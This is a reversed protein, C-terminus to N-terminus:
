AKNGTGPRQLACMNSSLSGKFAQWNRSLLAHRSCAQVIQKPKQLLPFVSTLAATTIQYQALPGAVPNYPVPRPGAQAYHLPRPRRASSPLSVLWSLSACHHLSLKHQHPHCAWWRTRHLCPTSRQCCGLSGKGMSGASQLDYHPNHCGPTTPNM